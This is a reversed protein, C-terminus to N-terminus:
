NYVTMLSEINNSVYGGLTQREESNCIYIYIYVSM